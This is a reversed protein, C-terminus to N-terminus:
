REECRARSHANCRKTRSVFAIGTTDCLFAPTGGGQVSSLMLAMVASSVTSHNGTIRSPPEVHRPAGVKLVGRSQATPRPATPTRGLQVAEKLETRAQNQKSNLKEAAEAAHTSLIEEQARTEELAAKTTAESSKLEDREKTVADLQTRSVAATERAEQLQEQQSRLEEKQAELQKSFQELGAYAKSLREELLRETSGNPASSARSRRSIFYGAIFGALVGTVFLLVEAM